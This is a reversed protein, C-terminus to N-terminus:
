LFHGCIFTVNVFLWFYWRSTTALAVWVPLVQIDLPIVSIMVIGVAFRRNEVVALECITCILCFYVESVPTIKAAMDIINCSGVNYAYSVCFRIYVECVHYKHINSITFSQASYLCHNYMKLTASLVPLLLLDNDVACLLNGYSSTNNNEFM